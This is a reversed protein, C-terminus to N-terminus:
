RDQTVRAHVADHFAYCSKPVSGQDKASSQVGARARTYVVSTTWPERPSGRERVQSESAFPARAAVRKFLVTHPSLIIELGCLVM